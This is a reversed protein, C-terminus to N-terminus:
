YSIGNEELRRELTDVKASLEQIAKSLLPTITNNCVQYMVSGDDQEIPIVYEDDIQKLEQAIYGCKVHGEKNTWDFDVHRIANVRDLANISTDVINQKLRADSLWVSIGWRTSNVTTIEVYEGNSHPVWKLWNVYDSMVGQWVADSTSYMIPSNGAVMITSLSLKGGYSGLTSANTGDIEIGYEDISLFNDEEGLVKFHIGLGGSGTDQIGDIHIGTENLELSQGNEINKFSIASGTIKSGVINGTVTLNGEDDTYFVKEESANTIDLAGNKIHAGKNDLTFSTTSIADDKSLQENVALVINKPQLAIETNNVRSEVTEIKEIVGNVNKEITTTKEEQDVAKLSLTNVTSEIETYKEVTQNVTATIKNLSEKNNSVDGEITDISGNISSIDSNITGISEANKSIDGKADTLDSSINSVNQTITAVNEETHATRITLSGITEVIASYNNQTEIIKAQISDENTFVRENMSDVNLGITDMEKKLGDVNTTISITDQEQKEVRATLKEITTEIGAYQTILVQVNDRITSMDYEFGTPTTGFEVKPNSAIAKEANVDVIMRLNSVSVIDEDELKYHAWIRKDVNNTSTQLLYQLDYQGLYWYVSYTKKVDNKYTVDFEVGVRNGLSLYGNLVYVSLSIVIDKGKLYNETIGLSPISYTARELDESTKILSYECNDFINGSGAEILYVSQTIKELQATIDKSSIVLQGVESKTDDIDKAIITIKNNAQDLETQVRKIKVTTDARNTVSEVAQTELKGEANMINYEANYYDIDISMLMFYYTDEDDYYKIIDGVTSGIIEPSKLSEMTMISLGIINTAIAKVQEQTEIYSNDAMLYYSQGEDTGYELVTGVGNDFIVKSITFEEITAFEEVGEYEPLDFKKEKSLRKFVINGEEDAFCNCASFEAIFMLYNRISLTNDKWGVPTDLVKQPVEDYIIPCSIMGSMEDLQGKITSPYEIASNYAVNSLIVNDYLTIELESTMREPKEYIRFVGLKNDNDYIEFEQDLIDNFANSSNDVSLKVQKSSVNGIITNDSFSISSEMATVYEAYDIGNSLIKYM